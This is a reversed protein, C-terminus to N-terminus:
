RFILNKFLAVGILFIFIFIYSNEGPGSVVYKMDPSLGFMNCAVTISELLQGSHALWIKILNFGDSSLIKRNDDLVYLHKVPSQHENFVSVVDGMENDYVNVSNNSFATVSLLHSHSLAM